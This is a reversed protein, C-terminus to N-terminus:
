LKGNAFVLRMSHSVRNISPLQLKFHEEQWIYLHLPMKRCESMVMEFYIYQGLGKHGGARGSPTRYIFVFGLIYSGSTEGICWCLYVSLIRAHTYRKFRFDVICKLRVCVIGWQTQRSWFDIRQPIHLSSVCVCVIPKLIITNKTVPVFIFHRECNM